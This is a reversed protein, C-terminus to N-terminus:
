KVIGFCIGDVNKIPKRLALIYATRYTATSLNSKTYERLCYYHELNTQSRVEHRSCTLFIKMGIHRALDRGHSDAGLLHLRQIMSIM